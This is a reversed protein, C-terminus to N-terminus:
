RRRFAIEGRRTQSVSCRGRMCDRAFNHRKPLAVTHDERMVPRNFACPAVSDGHAVASAPQPRAM